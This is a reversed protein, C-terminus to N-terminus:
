AAAEDAAKPTLMQFSEVIIETAWHKKGEADDWSDTHIRGDAYLLKGKRMYDAAVEAQRGFLTLTHFEAHEKRVGNEDKGGYTNTALRLKAIQVGSPSTRLEPDSTLRGILIVKNVM